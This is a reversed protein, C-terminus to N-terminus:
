RRIPDFGSLVVAEPTDDIILDVGTLAEFARINRGERGIVRGKMEETPLDVVSVTRETTTESAYKNIALSLLQKAKHDAEIKALEEQEKIYLNIENAMENEVRTMITGKAEDVTIGSIQILKEEQEKLLDDVKNKLEDVEIRKEDIRIEKSALHEERKDLNASRNNLMEERRSLKNELDVVMQKREKVDKDFEKKLNFIEQRAELLSEKKYTDAEKKGEEVIKEAEEKSLRISKEHHIVRLFYGGIPGVVLLLLTSILLIIELNSM